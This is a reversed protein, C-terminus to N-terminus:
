LREIPQVGPLYPPTYVLEHKHQAMLKAVETRNMDPHAALYAQLEAKLEERTPAWTGGRRGFSAADFDIREMTSTGKKLRQVSITTLGLEVLKAALQPKNMSSVYLWDPGRHHHYSANDLVLVMKQGPFRQAFVPLLRNSLWQMYIGGNMNAHYDGDGKEAEYILECSPALQDVRDNHVSPDLSLWGEQTFAHVLVLRKGAGSPRVVDNREPADPHYWTFRRAHKVNVYSEDMYVIVCRGQLQEVVAASYRILFTRIRAVYWEDNMRGIIHGRGYRYGMSTLVSRLTRDPIHLGHQDLVCRQLDLSTCCGGTRNAERIYETMTFIVDVTVHHAHDVHLVSGAGRHATDVVYVLREDRWKSWLAHLQKYSRRITSSVFRLTDTPTEDYRLIIGIILTLILTCEHYTWSRGKANVLEDQEARYDAILHQHEHRHERAVSVADSRNPHRNEKGAPM